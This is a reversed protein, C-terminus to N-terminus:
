ARGVTSSRAKPTAEPSPSAAAVVAQPHDITSPVRVRIATSDDSGVSPVGKLSSDSIPRSGSAAHARVAVSAPGRARDLAQILFGLLALLAGLSAAQLLLFTVSPEFLTASLIAVIAIGLWVTRFRFKLFIALVGVVLALGSCFLILWSGPLLWVFLATPEGRKSFLYRDADDDGVGTFDDIAARAGGSGVLWDALAAADRSPAAELFLRDVVLSERGDLRPSNGPRGPELPALSGSSRFSSQPVRSSPYGGPLARVPPRRRINWSSWPRGPFAEAPFRVRYGAKSEDYDVQEAIRGDVRAEIWDLGDPLSFAFDLGHLEAWYRAM